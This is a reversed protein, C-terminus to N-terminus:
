SKQTAMRLIRRGTEQIRHGTEQIRHGTEQIRHGTEEYGTDRKGNGSKVVVNGRNILPSLVEPLTADIAYAYKAKAFILDLQALVHVNNRIYHAEDAVLETLETLIRRVEQDEKLELERVANNQQM